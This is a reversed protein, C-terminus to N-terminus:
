ESNSWQSQHNRSLPLAINVPPRGVEGEDKDEDEVRMPLGVIGHNAEPDRRMWPSQEKVKLDFIETPPHLPAFHTNPPKPFKM